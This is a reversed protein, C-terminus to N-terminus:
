LIYMARNFFEDQIVMKGRLLNGKLINEQYQKPIMTIFYISNENDVNRVDYLKIELWDPNVYIYEKILSKINEKIPKSTDNVISPLVLEDGSLSLIYPESSSIDYSILILELKNM